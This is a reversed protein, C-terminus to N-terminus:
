KSLVGNKDKDLKKFLKELEKKHSDDVLHSSIYQWVACQFENEYNFNKLRLLNERM